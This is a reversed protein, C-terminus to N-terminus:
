LSTVISLPWLSFLIGPWAALLREISDWIRASSVAAASVLKQSGAASAAPAAVPVAAVDVRPADPSSPTQRLSLFVVSCLFSCRVQLAKLVGAIAEMWSDKKIPVDAM